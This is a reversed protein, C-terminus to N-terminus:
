GVHGWRIRDPEKDKIYTAAKALKDLRDDLEKRIDPALAMGKEQVIGHKIDAHGLYEKRSDVVESGFSRVVEVSILALGEYIKPQSEQPRQVWRKAYAKSLWPPTYWRRSM